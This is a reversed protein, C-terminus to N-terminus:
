PCSRLFVKRRMMWLRAWNERPKRLRVLGSMMQALSLIRLSTHNRANLLSAM